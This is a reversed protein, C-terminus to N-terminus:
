AKNYLINTTFDLSNHTENYFICCKRAEEVEERGVGTPTTTMGASDKAITTFIVNNRVTMIKARM